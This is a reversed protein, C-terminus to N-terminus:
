KKPQIKEPDTTPEFLGLGCSAGAMYGDGTQHLVTIFDVNCLQSLSTEYKFTNAAALGNCAHPLHNNYVKHDPTYFLINQDDVIKTRKIATVMLCRKTAAADANDTAANGAMALLVGGIGAAIKLIVGSKSEARQTFLASPNTM